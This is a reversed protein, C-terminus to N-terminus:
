HAGPQAAGNSFLFQLTRYPALMRVAIASGTAGAPEGPVFRKSKSKSKSGSFFSVWVLLSGFGTLESRPSLFGFGFGFRFRFRFRSYTASGLAGFPRLKLKTPGPQAPDYMFSVARTMFAQLALSPNSIQSIRRWFPRQGSLAWTVALSGVVASRASGWGRARAEAEITKANM